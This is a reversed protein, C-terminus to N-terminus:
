RLQIPSLENKGSAVKATLGSQDPQAFKAPLRSEPGRDPNTSIWQEVTIKYEGQPAGDDAAYTSLSFSGDEATKGRPKSVEEGLDFAPHFVVTAHPVPKGDQLIQGKVEFTPLQGSPKGCSTFCCLTAGLILLSWKRFLLSQVQM